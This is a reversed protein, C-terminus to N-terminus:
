MFGVSAPAWLANKASSILCSLGLLHPMRTALGIFPNLLVGADNTQYLHWLLSGLNTPKLLVFKNVQM